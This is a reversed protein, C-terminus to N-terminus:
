AWQWETRGCEPCSGDQMLRWDFVCVMKRERPVYHDREPSRPPEQARRFVEFDDDQMWDMREELARDYIEEQAM